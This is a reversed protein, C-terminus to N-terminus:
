PLDKLEPWSKPYYFTNGSTLITGDSKIGLLCYCGCEVMVIDSWDHVLKKGDLHGSVVVTGDSKLGAVFGGRVSIDVIDTWKSIENIEDYNFNGAVVVTGDTKLGVTCYMGAEIKQIDIWNNVNLEGNYNNNKGEFTSAVVTGDFKLGVVHNKGVAIDIINIWDDVYQQSEVDASVVTGDSKLGFILGSTGAKINVINKWKSRVDRIWNSQGEVTGDPKLFYVYMASSAVAVYKGDEVEIKNKEDYILPTGDESIGALLMKRETSSGGAAWVDRNTVDAWLAFSRVKADSFSGAKGFMIAAEANKGQKLYEEAKNYNIIPIFLFTSLLYIVLAVAAIIGTAVLTKKSKSKRVALRDYKEEDIKMAADTKSYEAIIADFYKSKEKSYTDNDWLVDQIKDVITRKIIIGPRVGRKMDESANEILQIKWNGGDDQRV